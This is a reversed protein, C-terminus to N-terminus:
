NTEITFFDSFNNSNKGSCVISFANTLTYNDFNISDTSPIQMKYYVVTLNKRQILNVFTILTYILSILMFILFVIGGTKTHYKDKSEYEFNFEVGFYDAKKLLNKFANLM